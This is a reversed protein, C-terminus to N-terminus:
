RTPGISKAFQALAENYERELRAILEATAPVDSCAGVGQGAGWIDKWAKPGGAADSFDGRQRDQLANPNLGAKVISQRLFTAPAGSFAATHVVDDARADVIMQKYAESAMSEQTCIFRTGMYALDAGMIRAAAIDRGTSICGALAITGAFLSRVQAVFAFPNMELSHGGGGACVLILGDVGAEAAKEAHRVTAVDHLVIGGYSHVEDVIDPVAGISTIVIPVRHAVCLALDQQLRKNTKYAILNVAYPAAPRQGGESLRSEVIDLWRAFDDSTRGNLAPFAGIVGNRCAESVLDPGSVLFMPAAIVPLRLNALQDPTQLM